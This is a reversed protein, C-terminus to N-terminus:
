RAGAVQRKLLAMLGQLDRKDVPYFGEILRFFMEDAVSEMAECIHFVNPGGVEVKQVLLGSIKAKAEIARV